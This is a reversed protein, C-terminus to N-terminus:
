DGCADSGANVWPEIRPALPTGEASKVRVTVRSGAGEGPAIDISMVHADALFLTRQFGVGTDVTIEGRKSANDFSGGIRYYGSTCQELRTYIVRYTAEPGRSSVFTTQSAYAPERDTENVYVVGCAAVLLSAGAALAAVGLKALARRM